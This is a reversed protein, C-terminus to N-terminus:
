SKRGEPPDLESGWESGGVLMWAPPFSLDFVSQIVDSKSQTVLFRLERLSPIRYLLSRALGRVLFPHAFVFGLVHSFGFVVPGEM